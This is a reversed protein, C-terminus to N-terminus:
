KLDTNESDKVGEDDYVVIEDVSFVAAARFM